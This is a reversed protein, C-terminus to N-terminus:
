CKIYYFYKNLNLIGHKKAIEVAKDGNAAESPRQVKM